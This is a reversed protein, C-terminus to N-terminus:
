SRRRPRHSDGNGLCLSPVQKEARYPTEVDEDRRLVPMLAGYRCIPEEVVEATVEAPVVVKAVQGSRGTM